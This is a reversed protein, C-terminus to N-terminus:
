IVNEEFWGIHSLVVYERVNILDKWWRLVHKKNSSIRDGKMKYKAGLVKFWM